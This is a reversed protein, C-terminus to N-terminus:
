GFFLLTSRRLFSRDKQLSSPSLTKSQSQVVCRGRSSGSVSFICMEPGKTHPKSDRNLQLGEEVYSEPNLSPVGLSSEWLLVFLERLLVTVTSPESM